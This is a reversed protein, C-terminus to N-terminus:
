CGCMAKSIYAATGLEVFTLDRAEAEVVTSPLSRETSMGYSLLSLLVCEYEAGEPWILKM